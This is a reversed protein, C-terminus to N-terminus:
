SNEVNDINDEDLKDLKEEINAGTLFTNDKTNEDKNPYNSEIMM